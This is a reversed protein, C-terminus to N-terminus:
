CKDHSTHSVIHTTKNEFVKSTYKEQWKKKKHTHTQKKNTFQQRAINNKWRMNALHKSFRFCVFHFCNDREWMRTEIPGWLQGAGDGDQKKAPKMRKKNTDEKGQVQNHKKSILDLSFPLKRVMRAISSTRQKRLYKSYRFRNTSQKWSEKESVHILWRWVWICGVWVCVCVWECTSWFFIKKKWKGLFIGFANDTRFNWIFSSRLKKECKNKPKGFFYNVLYWCSNCEVCNFYQIEIM